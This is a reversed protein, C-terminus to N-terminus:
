ERPGRILRRLGVVLGFCVAAAVIIALMMLLSALLLDLMDEWPIGFQDVAAWILTAMAAVGLFITRYYKRNAKKM